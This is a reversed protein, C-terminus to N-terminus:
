SIAAANAGHELYGEGAPVHIQAKQIRGSVDVHVSKWESFVDLGALGAERHGNGTKKNGGFPLYAEAGIPPINVYFVPGFIEEQSIPM